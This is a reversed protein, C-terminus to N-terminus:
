SFDMDGRENPSAEETIAKKFENIISKILKEHNAKRERAIQRMELAMEEFEEMIANLDKKGLVLLHVESDATATGDRGNSDDQFFIDSDGFYSGEVYAIFPLNFSEMMDPDNLNIDYYLKIKGQKIFYVVRTLNTSILIVKM